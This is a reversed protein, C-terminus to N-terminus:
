AAWTPAYNLLRCKAPILRTAEQAELVTSFHTCPWLKVRWGRRSGRRRCRQGRRRRWKVRGGRLERRARRKVGAFSRRRERWSGRSPRLSVRVSLTGGCYLATHRLM